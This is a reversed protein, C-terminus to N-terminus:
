ETVILRVNIPLENSAAGETKIVVRGYNKGGMAPYYVEPAGKPVEFRIPYVTKSDSKRAEGVTVKLAEEPDVSLVEPVIESHNEGHIFLFVTVASGESSRINGLKVLNLRPDFSPGGHLELQGVVTGTIPLGLTGIRDGQDTKFQIQASLPGLPLGPKINFEVRHARFANKHDPFQAPDMDVEDVRIDVLERTRLDTWEFDSLSKADRLYTFVHFSKSTAETDSINGLEIASPEMVFSQAIEGGVKLQIELQDTDNTYITASQGFTRTLAQAKWTLTVNTEEGPDLVSNALEGVTCKCTSQGMELVLPADGVNKFVFTHSMEEGHMMMGFDFETGGVVELKPKGKVPQVSEAESLEGRLVATTARTQVFREEIGSNQVFVQLSGLAVGIVGSTITLILVRFM